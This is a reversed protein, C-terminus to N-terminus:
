GCLRQWVLGQHGGDGVVPSALRCWSWFVAGLPFCLVLAAMKQDPSGQILPKGWLLLSLSALVQFLVKLLTVGGASAAMTLGSLMQAQSEGDM